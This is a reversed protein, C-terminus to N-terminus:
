YRSLGFHGRIAWSDSFLFSAKLQFYFHQGEAEELFNGDKWIQFEPGELRIKACIDLIKNLM